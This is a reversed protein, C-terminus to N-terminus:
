HGETSEFWNQLNPNLRRWAVGHYSKKQVESAVLMSTVLISLLFVLYFPVWQLKLSALCLLVFVVAWILESARSMRVINCFLFFHVLVFLIIVSFNPSSNIFFCAGAVGLLIFAIDLVSLRFGPKFARNSM